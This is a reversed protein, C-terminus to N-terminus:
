YEIKNLLSCLAVKESDSLRLLAQRLLKKHATERSRRLGVGAPTLFVYVVRKDMTDREKYVYGKDTLRQLNTTLTGATINLAKAINNATNSKTKTLTWITDLTNYEKVGLTGLTKLLSEENALIKEFGQLMMKELVEDLQEM